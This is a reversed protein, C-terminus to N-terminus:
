RGRADPDGVLDRRGGAGHRDGHGAQRIRPHRPGAGPRGASGRHGLDGAVGPRDEDGFLRAGAAHLPHRHLHLQLLEGRAPVRGPQVRRPDAAPVPATAAPTAAGAGGRGLLGALLGASVALLALTRIATWGDAPARSIAYVLAVLGGTVTVAGLV